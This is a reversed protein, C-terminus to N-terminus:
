SYSSIIKDASMLWREFARDIWGATLSGAAAYKNSRSRHLAKGSLIMALAVAKIKKNKEYTLVRDPITIVIDTGTISGTISGQLRETDIPVYGTFIDIGSGLIRNAIDVYPLQLTQVFADFADTLDGM